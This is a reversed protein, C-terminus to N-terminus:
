AMTEHRLRLPRRRVSKTDTYRKSGSSISSQVSEPESLAWRRVSYRRFGPTVGNEMM